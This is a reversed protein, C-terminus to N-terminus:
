ARSSCVNSELDRLRTLGLDHVALFRRVADQARGPFVLVAGPYLKSAAVMSALCDFDAHLHTTIIDM